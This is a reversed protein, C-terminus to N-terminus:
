TACLALLFDGQTGGKTARVVEVVDGHDLYRDIKRQLIAPWHFSTSYGNVVLVCAKGSFIHPRDFKAGPRFKSCDSSFLAVVALVACLTQRPTSQQVTM